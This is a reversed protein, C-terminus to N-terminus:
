NLPVPNDAFYDIVSYNEHELFEKLNLGLENMLASLFAHIIKIDNERSSKKKLMIKLVPYYDSVTKELEYLPKIYPFPIHNAKEVKINTVALNSYGPLHDLETDLYDVVGDNKDLNLCSSIYEFM